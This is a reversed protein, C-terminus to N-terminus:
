TQSLPLTQSNKTVAEILPQLRNRKPRGLRASVRALDKMEIAEPREAACTASERARSALEGILLTMMAAARVRARWAAQGREPCLSDINPGNRM